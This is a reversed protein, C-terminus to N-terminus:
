RSKGVVLDRAELGLLTVIASVIVVLQVPDLDYDPLLADLVLLVCVVGTLAAAAGIRAMRYDGTRRDGETGPSSMGVRSIRGPIPDLDDAM